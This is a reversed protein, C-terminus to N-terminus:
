SSNDHTINKNISGCALSDAMGKGLLGNGGEDAGLYALEGSDLAHVLHILNLSLMVSFLISVSHIILMVDLAVASRTVVGAAVSGM